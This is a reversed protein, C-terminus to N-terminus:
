TVFDEPNEDPFFATAVSKETIKAGDRAISQQDFEENFGLVTGIYVKWSKHNHQQRIAVVGITHQSKPPTFWRAGIIEYKEM